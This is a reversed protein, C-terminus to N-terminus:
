RSEERPKGLVRVFLFTLRGRTVSFGLRRPLSGEESPVTLLLRGGAFLHLGEESPLLAYTEEPPGTWPASAIEEDGGSKLVARVLAARGAGLRLYCETGKESARLPIRWFGPSEPKGLPEFRVRWLIGEPLRPHDRGMLLMHTGSPDELICGPSDPDPRWFRLREDLPGVPPYLRWDWDFWGTRALLESSGSALSREFGQFLLDEAVPFSATGAGGALVRGYRGGALAELAEGERRLGEFESSLAPYFSFIAPAHAIAGRAMSVARGVRAEGEGALVGRAALRAARRGEVAALRLAVPVWLLTEEHSGSLSLREGLAESAGGGLVRLSLGAQAPVGDPVLERPDVEEWPVDRKRGERDLLVVGRSDAGAPRGALIRGDRLRLGKEGSREALARTASEFAGRGLEVLRIAAELHVRAYESEFEPARRLEELESRVGEFGFAWLEPSRREFLDLMRVVGSWASESPPRAALKERLSFLPESGEEELPAETRKPEPPLDPIEAAPAPVFAAAPPASVENRVSRSLVGALAAAALLGVTGLALGLKKARRRGGRRLSERCGRLAELLEGADAYREEPRKRLCRLIIEELERPFGDRQDTIRDPEEERHMRLIAWIDEDDFPVAGAAMRYLVVGLSYLDARHDYGREGGGVQEPAMYQPTGLLYGNRTVQRHGSEARRRALGFDGIRVRGDGGVLINEPKLDRHVIRHAHAYGLAAALSEGVDLIESPTFHEGQALREEIVDALTRGEVYDMVLYLVGEADGVDLLRVVNPHDLAAQTRAELLLAERAKTRTPGGLPVNTLIKIARRVHLELHEAEFVEAFGGQGIRRLLKHRGLVAGVWDRGPAAGEAGELRWPFLDPHELAEAVFRLLAEPTEYDPLEGREKAATAQAISEELYYAVNVPVRDAPAIEDGGGVATISRELRTEFDEISRVGVARAFTIAFARLLNRTRALSWFAELFGREEWIGPGFREEVRAWLTRGRERWERLDRSVTKQWESRDPGPAELPYDMRTPADSM